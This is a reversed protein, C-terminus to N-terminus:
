AAGGPLARLPPHQANDAEAADCMAAVAATVAGPGHVARFDDLYPSGPRGRGAATSDAPRWNGPAQTIAIRLQDPTCGRQEAVLRDLGARIMDPAIGADLAAAITRTARAHDTLPVGAAYHAALAGAESHEPESELARTDADVFALSGSVQDQGHLATGHLATGDGARADVRPRAPLPARPQVGNPNGESEADHGPPSRDSETRFGPPRPDSDPPQGSRAGRKRDRDKAKARGLEETSKNWKLWARIQVGNDTRELPGLDILEALLARVKAPTGLKRGAIEVVQAETLFGDSTSRGALALCRVFLLEAHPSAEVLDPDEDFRIDLPVYEGNRRAAM